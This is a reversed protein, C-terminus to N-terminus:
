IRTYITQYYDIKGEEVILFLSQAIKKEQGEGTEKQKWLVILEKM